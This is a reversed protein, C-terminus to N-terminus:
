EYRIALAETGAGPGQFGTGEIASAAPLTYYTHIAGYMYISPTGNPVPGATLYGLFNMGPNMFIGKSHLLPSVITQVGSTASAANPFLAPASVATTPGIDGLTTSWVPYFKAGTAAGSSVANNFVGLMAETTDVGAANKSREFGFFLGYGGAATFGYNICFRNTDGSGVVVCAGVVATASCLYTTSLNGTLTGSGNSGSGFQFRMAPNNASGTSSGYEIKLYVPASAQLSDALRWIEYGMFTSIAVPALVTTFDIQGTDSTKVLGVAAMRASIYSGWTRFNADSSNTFNAPATTFSPM